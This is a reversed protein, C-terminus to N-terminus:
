RYFTEVAITDSHLTVHEFVRGTMIELLSRLTPVDPYFYVSKDVFYWTSVREVGKKPEELPPILFLPEPKHM